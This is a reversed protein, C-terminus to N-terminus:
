MREGTHKSLLDAVPDRDWSWALDFPTEEWRTQARPDAGRKLLVEVVQLHGNSAAMHLATWCYENSANVDADHDLLLQVDELHGLKAAYHLLTWGEPSKADVNAGHKLLLTLVTRNGESSAYYLVTKGWNDSANPNAGHDLLLRAFDNSRHRSAIHLPSRGNNDRLNVDAGGELIMRAIERRGNKSAVHLATWTVSWNEDDRDDCEANLDARHDILLQVIETYGRSSAMYLATQRLRGRSDVNAGYDLLLLVVDLHGKDIAAHLPTEHYGGRSNLDQPHANLLREVLDPLGCLAAYYLPVANPHTPQPHVSHRIRLDIDHLWIWAALHPKKRDFFSDVVVRIHSSIDKFRAHDVWHAAAYSALPFNKVKAEDITYDLQLLISLCAKALLTHAPKLLVHFNSVPALNAIRDSTLYEKVSFHAFQVAQEGRVDVVTILTSCTSLVNAQADSPRWSPDFKPIGSPEVDFDIAFVEALEEVRLPRFSVTLWQFIRHADGRKEEPIGQLIREYTEDLTKPLGELARSINRLPCWRLTELQCYAWRFRFNDCSFSIHLIMIVKVYMGGGKNTLTDIVSKKVKEPWKMMTADTLVVSEVYRALDKKQGSQDHLSVSDPNLPRLIEQIDIEPRSTVCFRLYPLKLDILEKLIKLVQERQTPLGSSNPCEDLADLVLYFTGQGQLALMMKLCGLLAEISPERSGDGHTSYVSSLIQSFANSQQCLQILISSLLNRPNQKNVDRFDCYFISLTALGTRCLDQLDEIISSSDTVHTRWRRIPTNACVFHYDQRLWSLCQFSDTTPFSLFSSRARLGNVWLLSGTSKWQRFTDGRM